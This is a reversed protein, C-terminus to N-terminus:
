WWDRATPYHRRRTPGGCVISRHIFRWAMGAASSRVAMTSGCTSGTSSCDGSACGSGAIIATPLLSRPRSSHGADCNSGRDPPIVFAMGQESIFLPEIREGAAMIHVESAASILRGLTQARALLTAKVGQLIAGDFVLPACTEAWHKPKFDPHAELSSGGNNFFGARNGTDLYSEAGMGKALLIDHSDLEM